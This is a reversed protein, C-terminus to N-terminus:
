KDLVPVEGQKILKDNERALKEAYEDTKSMEVKNQLQINEEQLKQVQEKTSLLNKNIKNITFQQSILTYAIYGIIIICLIRKLNVKGSM